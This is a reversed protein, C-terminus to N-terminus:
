PESGTTVELLLSFEEEDSWQQRAQDPEPHNPNLSPPPLALTRGSPNTWQQRAAARHRQYLQRWSVGAGPAGAKLAALLPSWQECAERWWPGSECEAVAARLATCTGVLAFVSRIGIPRSLLGLVDPMVLVDLACM